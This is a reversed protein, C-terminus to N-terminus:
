AYIVKIPLADLNGANDAYAEMTLSIVANERAKGELKFGSTCLANEFVVAIERADNATKGIFAFGPVYDGEEVNAKPIVAGNEKKGLMAMAIIEESMEAFNCEMTATGGQMVALGKVKVLAGDLEINIVEGKIELSNGGATAGLITGYDSIKGDEGVVVDRHITGAGLLINDPTATTIGHKGSVGHIANAM